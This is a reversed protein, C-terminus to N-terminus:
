AVSLKELAGHETCSKKFSQLWNFHKFLILSCDLLTHSDSDLVVELRSM